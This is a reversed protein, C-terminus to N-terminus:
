EDFKGQRMKKINGRHSKEQLRAEQAGASVRTKMRKKPVHLAKNILSALNKLAMKKNHMQSRSESNHVVIEGEETLRSALKQLVREKQEPTFIQTNRVNWRVTIRSMTKNVHQGGPGGAKSAAIEIEHTPIILGNQLLIDDSM